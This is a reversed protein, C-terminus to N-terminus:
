ENMAPLSLHFMWSGLFLILLAWWDIARRKSLNYHSLINILGAALLVYFVWFFPKKYFDRAFLAVRSDGTIFLTLVAAHYSALPIILSVIWPPVSSELLNLKM